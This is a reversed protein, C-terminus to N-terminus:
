KLYQHTWRLGTRAQVLREGELGFDAKVEAVYLASVKVQAKAGELCTSDLLARQQVHCPVHMFVTIIIIQLVEGLRHLVAQRLAVLQRQPQM